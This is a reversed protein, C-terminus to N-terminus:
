HHGFQQPQRAMHADAATKLEGVVEDIGCQAAAVAVALYAHFEASGRDPVVGSVKQRNEVHILVADGEVDFVVLKDFRWERTTKSGTFIVRSTTIVARGVDVSTQLEPGPVYTGRYSGTRYWVGKAIRVSVGSSRGSSYGRRKRPEILRCTDAFLATEGSKLVIGYDTGGGGRSM